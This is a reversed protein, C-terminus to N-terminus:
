STSTPMAAEATTIPNNVINFAITPKIPDHLFDDTKKM